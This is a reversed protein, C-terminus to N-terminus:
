KFTGAFAGNSAPERVRPEHIVRSFLSQIRAYIGCLVKRVTDWLLSPASHLLTCPRPPSHARSWSYPAWLHHIRQFLAVEARRKQSDSMRSGLCKAKLRSWNDLCVWADPTGASHMAGGPPGVTGPRAARRWSPRQPVGTVRTTSLGLPPPAAPLPPPPPLGGGGGPLLRLCPPASSSSKRQIRLM